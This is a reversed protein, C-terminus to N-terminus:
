RNTLRLGVIGLLPAPLARGPLQHGRRLAPGVAAGGHRESDARAPQPGQRRARGQRVRGQAVAPFAVAIEDWLPPKEVVIKM